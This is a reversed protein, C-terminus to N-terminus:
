ASKGEVHGEPPTGMVRVESIASCLCNPSPSGAGLWSAGLCGPELSARPWKLGGRFGLDGRSPGGRTM